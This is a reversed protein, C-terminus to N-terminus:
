LFIGNQKIRFTWLNECVHGTIGTPKLYTIKTLKLCESGSSCVWKPLEANNQHTTIEYIRQEWVYHLTARRNLSKRFPQQMHVCCSIQAYPLNGPLWQTPRWDGTSSVVRWPGPLMRQPARCNVCHNEFIHPKTGWFVNQWTWLCTQAVPVYHTSAPSAVLFCETNYLEGCCLVVHSLIDTTGRKLFEARFPAKAHRAKTDTSDFESLRYFSTLVWYSVEQTPTWLGLSLMRGVMERVARLFILKKRLAGTWENTFHSSPTLYTFKVLHREM